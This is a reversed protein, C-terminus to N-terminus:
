YPAPIAALAADASSMEFSNCTISVAAAFQGLRSFEKEHGVMQRWQIVGM